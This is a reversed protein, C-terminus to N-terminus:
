INRFTIKMRQLGCKTIFKSDVNGYFLYSIDCLVNFFQIQNIFTSLISPRGDKKKQFEGCKQELNTHFLKLEQGRNQDPIKKESDMKEITTGPITTTITTAATVMPRRAVVHLTGISYTRSDLGAPVVLLCAKWFIFTNSKRAIIFPKFGACTLKKYFDTFPHCYHYVPNFM